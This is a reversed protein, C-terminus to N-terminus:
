RPPPSTIEVLGSPFGGVHGSGNSDAEAEQLERTCAESAFWLGITAIRGFDRDVQVPLYPLSSSALARYHSHEFSGTRRSYPPPRRIPNELDSTACRSRLKGQSHTLLSHM